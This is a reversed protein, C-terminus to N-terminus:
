SHCAMRRMSQLRLTPWSGYAFDGSDFPTWRLEGLKWHAFTSRIARWPHHRGYSVAADSDTPAQALRTTMAVVTSALDDRSTTFSLSSPQDERPPPASCAVAALLVLALMLRRM